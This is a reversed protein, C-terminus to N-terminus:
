NWLVFDISILFSIKYFCKSAFFIQSCAFQAQLDQANVIQQNNLFNLHRQSLSLKQFLPWQIFKQNVNIFKSFHISSQGDAYFENEYSQMEYQLYTKPFRMSYTRFYIKDSRDNMLNCLHLYISEASNSSEDSLQQNAIEPFTNKFLLM